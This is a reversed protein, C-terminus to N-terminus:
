WDAVEDGANITLLASMTNPAIGNPAYRVSGDATVVFVDTSLDLERNNVSLRGSDSVMADVPQHWPAGTNRVAILLITNGTGDKFESLSRTGDARWAANPGVVALIQYPYTGFRHDSISQQNTQSDWPQSLDYSDFRDATEVINAMEGRILSRWSHIPNGNGDRLVAPPFRGHTDHYSHLAMVIWKLDNHTQKLLLSRRINAIGNVVLVGALVALAALCIAIIWNKRIASAM